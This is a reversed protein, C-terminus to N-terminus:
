SALSWSTGPCRQTELLIDYLGKTTKFDQESCRKRPKPLHDGVKEFDEM